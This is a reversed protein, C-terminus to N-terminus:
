RAGRRCLHFKGPRQPPHTRFPGEDCARRRAREELAIGDEDAVMLCGDLEISAARSSAHSAELTKADLDDAARFEAARDRFRSGAKEAMAAYDSYVRHLRM